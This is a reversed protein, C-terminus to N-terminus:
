QPNSNVVIKAEERPLREQIKSFKENAIAVPDIAEVEATYSQHLKVLDELRVKEAGSAAAARQQIKAINEANRALKSAKIEQQKAILDELTVNERPM